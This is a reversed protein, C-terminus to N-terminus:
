MEAANTQYIACEDLLEGHFNAGVARETVCETIMCRGQAMADTSENKKDGVQRQSKGGSGLVAFKDVAATGNALVSSGGDYLCTVFGDDLIGIEVDTFALGDTENLGSFIGGNEVPHEGIIGRLDEAGELGVSADIDDIGGTNEKLIAADDVDASEVGGGTFEAIGIKEGIFVVEGVEGTGDDVTAGDLRAPGDSEETGFGDIVTVDSGVGLGHNECRAIIDIEPFAIAVNKNLGVRGSAAFSGVGGALGGDGVM